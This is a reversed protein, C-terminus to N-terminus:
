CHYSSRIHLMPICCTASRRSRSRPGARLEDLRHVSTRTRPCRCAKTIHTSRRQRTGCPRRDALSLTQLRPKRTLAAFTTKQVFASERFMLGKFLVPLTNSAARKELSVATAQEDTARRPMGTPATPEATATAFEIRSRKNYLDPRPTRPGRIPSATPSVVKTELSFSMSPQNGLTPDTVFGGNPIVIDAPLNDYDILTINSATGNTVIGGVASNRYYVSDASLALRNNVRITLSDATADDVRRM